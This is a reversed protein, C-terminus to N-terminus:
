VRELHFEQHKEWWDGLGIENIIYAICVLQMCVVIDLKEKSTMEGRIKKKNGDANLHALADRTDGIFKGYNGKCDYKSALVKLRYQLQNISEM